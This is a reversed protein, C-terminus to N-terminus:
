LLRYLRLSGHHSMAVFSLYGVFGLDLPGFLEIHVFTNIWILEGSILQHLRELERTLSQITSITVTLIPSLASEGTFSYLEASSLM